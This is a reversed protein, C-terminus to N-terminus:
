ERVFRAKKRPGSRQLAGKIPLYYCNWYEKMIIAEYTLFGRSQARELRRAWTRQKAMAARIEDEQMKAITIIRETAHMASQAMSIAMKRLFDQNSEAIERVAPTIDVRPAEQGELSTVGPPSRVKLGASELVEKQEDGVVRGYDVLTSGGLPVYEISRRKFVFLRGRITLMRDGPFLMVTKPESDPDDSLLKRHDDYMAQEAITFTSGQKDEILRKMDSSPDVGALQQYSERFLHEYSTLVRVRGRRIAFYRTRCNKCVVMRGKEPSTEPLVEGCTDCLEPFTKRGYDNKKDVFRSCASSHPGVRWSNRMKHIEFTTLPREGDKSWRPNRYGYAQSLLWWMRCHRRLPIYFACQGCRNEGDFPKRAPIHY